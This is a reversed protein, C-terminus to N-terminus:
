IGLPTNDKIKQSIAKLRDQLAGDFTDETITAHYINFYHYAATEERNASELHKWEGTELFFQLFNEASIIATTLYRHIRYEANPNLM